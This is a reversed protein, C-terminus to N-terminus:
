AGTLYDAVAALTGGRAPHRRSRYQDAMQDWHKRLAEPSRVNPAWFQAVPDSRRALWDIVRRVELPDRGDVKLLRGMDQVWRGTVNPRKAGAAALTDALHHALVEAGSADSM